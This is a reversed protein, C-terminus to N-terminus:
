LPMASTSNGLAPDFRIRASKKPAAYPSADTSLGLPLQALHLPRRRRPTQGAM